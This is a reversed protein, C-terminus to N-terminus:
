ILVLAATDHGEEELSKSSKLLISAGSTDM